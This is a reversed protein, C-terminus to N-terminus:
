KRTGTPCAFASTRCAAFYVHRPGLTSDPSSVFLDHSFGLFCVGGLSLLLLHRGPSGLLSDGSARASIGCAAMPAFVPLSCRQHHFYSAARAPLTGPPCVPTRPTRPINGMQSGSVSATVQHFNVSHITCRETCINCKCMETTYLTPLPFPLRLLLGLSLLLLPALPPGPLLPSFAHHVAADPGGPPCCPCCPSSLVRHRM